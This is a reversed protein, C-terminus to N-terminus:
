QEKQHLDDAVESDCLVCVADKYLEKFAAKPGSNETGAMPHAFLTQKTLKAPLKEIIKRKTSGLEIITTNSPLNSIKTFDRHYCKCANRYFDYRM